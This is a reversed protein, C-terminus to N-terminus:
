PDGPRRRDIDSVQSWSIASRSRDASRNATPILEILGGQGVDGRTAIETLAERLTVPRGDKTYPIDKPADKGTAPDKEVVRQIVKADGDGVVLYVAQDPKLQKAAATKVQAETVKGVSGVFTNYYDLPM